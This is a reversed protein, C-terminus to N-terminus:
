GYLHIEVESVSWLAKCLHSIQLVEKLTYVYVLVPLVFLNFCM